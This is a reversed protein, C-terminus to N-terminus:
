EGHLLRAAAATRGRLKEITEAVIDVV